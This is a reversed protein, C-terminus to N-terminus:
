LSTRLHVRTGNLPNLMFQFIEKYDGVKCSQKLYFTRYNHICFCDSVWGLSWEPALDSPAVGTSAGRGMCQGGHGLEMKPATRAYPRHPAFEVEMAQRHSLCAVENSGCVCVCVVGGAHHEPCEGGGGWSLSLVMVTCFILRM